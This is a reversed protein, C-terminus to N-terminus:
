VCTTTLGTVKTMEMGHPPHKFFVAKFSTRFQKSMLGYLVFGVAANILALLDMLEGFLSYCRTLFCKQLIGSLLGLIGQPFETILFLLLVAVLLMTTRDTRRDSRPPKTGNLATAAGQNAPNTYGKLKIKRKAAKYLVRILVFSIVTLIVCPLLKIVISHMWFNFRYLATDERADLHYLLVSRNNEKITKENIRFVFYTPFCLLPSIIYSMLIAENCHSLVCAAFSGHPHKIAIYRWIALTVTLSISITHLIQSLHMHFLLYAAWSYKFERKGPFILYMYTSFPIYEIMVIMDTVALWKLIINIPAKAMEKRTLVIINLINAITGFICIVLSIYGHISRYSTFIDRVTGSCYTSCEREAVAKNWYWVFANVNDLTLNHDKFIDKSSNAFFKTFNQHLVAPSEGDTAIANGMLRNIHEQIDESINM